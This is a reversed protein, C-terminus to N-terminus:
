SGVGMWRALMAEREADTPEIIGTRRCIVDMAWQCDDCLGRADWTCWREDLLITCAICRKAATRAGVSASPRGAAPQVFGDIATVPIRWAVGPSGGFAGSFRGKRCWENVTQFSVGLHAAVEKTTLTGSV